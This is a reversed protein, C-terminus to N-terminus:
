QKLELSQLSTRLETTAAELSAAHAKDACSTQPGSLYYYHDGVQKVLLNNLTTIPETVRYLTGIGSFNEAELNCNSSADSLAQTSFVINETGQAFTVGQLDIINRKGYIIDTLESTPKFQVHWEKIEVYKESNSPTKQETSPTPSTNKVTRNAELARWTILGVLVIAAIILLAGVLGFGEKSCDKQM